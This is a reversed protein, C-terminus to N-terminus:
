QIDLSATPYERRANLLLILDSFASRLRMLVMSFSNACPFFLLHDLVSGQLMAVNLPSSPFFYASPWPYLLFALFLTNHSGLFPCKLPPMNTNVEVLYHWWILYSSSLSIAIPNPLISLM